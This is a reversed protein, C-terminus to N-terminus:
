KIRIIKTEGPLIDFAPKKTKEALTKGSVADIFTYAAPFNLVKKGGKGSHIGVLDSGVYVMCDPDNDVYFHVGAKRALERWLDLPLLSVASYFSKWNGFDRYAMPKHKQDFLFSGFIKANKDVPVAAHEVKGVSAFVPDKVKKFVEPLEGPNYRMALNINGSDAMQIGTLRSVNDVGITKGDIYGTNHLFVLLKGDRKLKEIAQRQEATPAWATMFVYMKYEPLDPHLLDNLFYRDLTTGMRLFASGQRSANLGRRTYTTHLFSKEDVFVAIEAKPVERAPAAEAIKQITEVTRLLGTNEFVGGHLDYWHMGHGRVWSLIFMKRGQSAFEFLTKATEWDKSGTLFTRCDAEDVFIKNHLRYSALPASVEHPKGIPRQKYDVAILYDFDPNRLVREIDLEAWQLIGAISFFKGYYAAVIRKRETAKKIVAAYDSILDVVCASYARTFEVVDADKVPHLFVKELTGKRREVSPIEIESFDKYAREWEANLKAITGYKKRLSDHFYNKMAQGYDGVYLIGRGAWQMFQGDDGGDLGFGAIQHYYPRTKVYELIKALFEASDKRYKQSAYSIYPKPGENSVFGEEPYKKVYWKPADTQFFLILNNNPAYFLASQLFHDLYETDLTNDPKWLRSFNLNIEALKVGSKDFGTMYRYTITSNRFNIACRQLLLPAAKGNIFLTPTGKVKKVEATLPKVQPNGSIKLTGVKEPFTMDRSELALEYDASMATSPIVLDGQMTLKGDAWSLNLPMRYFESGNRFLKLWVKADPENKALPATFKVNVSSGAVGAINIAEPAVAPVPSFNTYRTEGYPRQPPRMYALAFNWKSHDFEPKGWGEVKVDSYRWTADSAIYRVSGDKMVLTLEGMWTSSDHPIYADGGFVNKGNRLYPLVDAVAKPTTWGYTRGLDHGNIYATGNNSGIYQCGAKAVQSLDLDFEKAFYWTGGMFRGQEPTRITATRLWYAQWYNKEIPPMGSDHVIKRIRWPPLKGNKDKLTFMVTHTDDDMTLDLDFIGNADVALPIEKETIRDLEDAFEVLMVANKVPAALQGTIRNGTTYPLFNRESYARAGQLFKEKALISIEEPSLERPILVTKGTALRFKSRKKAWDPSNNIHWLKPVDDKSWAFNLWREGAYHGDVYLKLMGTKSNTKWTFAIHTWKGPAFPVNKFIIDSIQKKAVDRFWLLRLSNDPNRQLEFGPTKGRTGGNVIYYIGKDANNWKDTYVWVSFTGANGFDADPYIKSPAYLKENIGTGPLVNDRLTVTGDQPADAKDASYKEKALVEIEDASLERSYVTSKGLAVKFKTRQKAWAPSNNLNWVKAQAAPNWVFNVWRQGAKKGNIYFNIITSKGNDKWGLTLMNWQGPVIADGKVTIDGIANKRADNFLLVRLTNNSNRYIEFGPVGNRNGADAVCYVGKDAADWKEPKVWINLTGASKLDDPCTIKEPQYMGPDDAAGPLANQRVTVTAASCVMATFLMTMLLFSKKM